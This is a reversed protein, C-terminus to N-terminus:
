SRDTSLHRTDLGLWPAILRYWVYDGNPALCVFRGGPKLVRYTHRLVTDQDLMHELSGICLAIDISQDQITSLSRADDTQFTLKGNGGSRKLREKAVEIMVRSFDIGIGQRIQPHLAMLHHGNGCGLDLVVDKLHPHAWKRILKLRTNLMRQPSGHQESYNPAFQDFFVRVEESTTVPTTTVHGLRTRISM